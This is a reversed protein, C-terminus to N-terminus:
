RKDGTSLQIQAGAEISFQKDSSITFQLTRGETVKFDVTKVANLTDPMIVHHIQSDRETKIELDFEGSGRMLMRVPQKAVSLAQLDLIHSKWKAVNGCTGLQTINDLSYMATYDMHGTTEYAEYPLSLRLGYEPDNVLWLGYNESAIPVDLNHKSLTGDQTNFLLVDVSAQYEDSFLSCIFVLFGRHYAASVPFQTYTSDAFEWVSFCRRLNDGDDLKQITAGTYFFIGDDSLWYPYGGIDASNSRKRSNLVGICEVTYNSPAYGTLRYVRYETFIVLQNQMAFIETISGDEPQGIDVHGGSTDVSADTRTWDEITRGDGPLCSWYLRRPNSGRSHGSAFLRNYYMTVCQIPMDSCGGRVRVVEQGALTAKSTTDVNFKVHGNDDVVDTVKLWLYADNVDQSDGYWIYIGDVKARNKQANTMFAFSSNVTIATIVNDSNKTVILDNSEFIYSGSGFKRAHVVGSSVYYVATLYDKEGSLGTDGAGDATARSVGSVITSPVNDIIANVHNEGRGDFYLDTTDAVVDQLSLLLISSSHPLAKGGRVLYKGVTDTPLGYVYFVNGYGSFDTADPSRMPFFSRSSLLRGGVTIVNSANEACGANLLNGCASNNIGIFREINLTNFGM